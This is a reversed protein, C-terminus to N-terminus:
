AAEHLYLTKNSKGASRCHIHSLIQKLVIKHNNYM